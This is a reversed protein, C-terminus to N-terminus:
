CQITGCEVSTAGWKEAERTLEPVQDIFIGDTFIAETAVTEDAACMRCQGPALVLVPESEEADTALDM